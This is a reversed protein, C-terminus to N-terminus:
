DAAPQAYDRFIVYSYFMVRGAYLVNLPRAVSDLLTAAVRKEFDKVLPAPLFRAVYADKTPLFDCQTRQEPWRRRLSERLEDLLAEDVGRRKDPPIDPLERVVWPWNTMM